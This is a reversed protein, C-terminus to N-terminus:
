KKFSTPLKGAVLDKSNPCLEVPTIKSLGQKPGTVWKKSRGLKLKVDDKNIEVESAYIYCNSEKFVVLYYRRSTCGSPKKDGFDVIGKGDGNCNTDFVLGRIENMPLTIMNNPDCGQEMMITGSSISSVKGMRSVNTDYLTDGNAISGALLWIIAIVAKLKNAQPLLSM